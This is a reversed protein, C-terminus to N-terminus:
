LPYLREFQQSKAPKVTELSRQIVSVLSTSKPSYMGGKELCLGDYPLIGGFYSRIWWLINIFSQGGTACMNGRAFLETVETTDPSKNKSKKEEEYNAKM